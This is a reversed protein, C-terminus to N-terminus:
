PEGPNETGDKGQIIAEDSNHATGKGPFGHLVEGPVAVDHMLIRNKYGMWLGPKAM